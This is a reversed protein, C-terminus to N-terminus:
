LSDILIGLKIKIQIVKLRYCKLTTSDEPNESINLCITKQPPPPCRLLNLFQRQEM